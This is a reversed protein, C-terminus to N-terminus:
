CLHQNAAQDEAEMTRGESSLVDDVGFTGARPLCFPFRLWLWTVNLVVVVANQLSVLLCYRVFPALLAGNSFLSSVKALHLM